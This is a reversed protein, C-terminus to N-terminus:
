PLASEFAAQLQAEAVPVELVLDALEGATPHPPTLVETLSVPDWRRYLACQFRSWHRTRRQSIGVVKHPGVHVEGPGRGAFCVLTSWPAVVLPGRHVALGSVGCAALASAWVDGLWHAARGVDHDWLDDVAPLILDVWVVDGPVLMVAGGGSRRRVLEVGGSALAQRDAVESSQTSGLV